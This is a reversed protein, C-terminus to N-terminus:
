EKRDAKNPREDEVARELDFENPASKLGGVAPGDTATICVCECQEPARALPPRNVRDVLMAAIGTPVPTAAVQDAPVPAGVELPFGSAAWALVVGALVMILAALASLVTAQAVKAWKEVQLANM